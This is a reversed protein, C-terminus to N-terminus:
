ELASGSLLLVRTDKMAELSIGEGDNKFHVLHLEDILGFGDAKLQGNLLYIFANHDEPLPIFIKGGEKFYLTAANVIAQSPAPGKVELLEGSFVNVKVKGDESSL